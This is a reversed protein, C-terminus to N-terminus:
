PAVEPVKCPPADGTRDGRFLCLTPLSVPHGTKGSYGHAFGGIDEEGAKFEYILVYDHAFDAIIKAITKEMSTHRFVRKCEDLFGRIHGMDWKELIERAFEYQARHDIPERRGNFFCELTEIRKYRTQTQLFRRILAKDMTGRHLEDLLRNCEVRLERMERLKKELTEINYRLRFDARTLKGSKVTAM